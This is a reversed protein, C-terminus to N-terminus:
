AVAPPKDEVRRAVVGVLYVMWVILGIHLVDNESFWLGQAWLRQTLGSILYLFYAGITFVLWGWAGLLVLDKAQKKQLYRRASLIILIVVGPTASLLLLEFSILFRVPVWIGVLLALVYVGLNIWAYTSLIRRRKGVTCAHAQALLMADVSAASLLLYIIEWGTTWLCAERGACKLTYSFAEYSTGALIAGVGWLLLAIGWWFRSKHAARIRFFYLGAAITLVGLLYVIATTSPQVLMVSRSGLQFQVYPQIELWTEPTQPPIYTLTNTRGCGTLMFLVVWGLLPRKALMAFNKVAAAAKRVDPNGVRKKQM